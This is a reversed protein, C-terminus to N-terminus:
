RGSGDTFQSSRGLAAVPRESRYVLVALVLLGASVVLSALPHRVDSYTRLFAAIAGAAAAAVALLPLRAHDWTGGVVAVACLLALFFCWAGLYTGTLRVLEVPSSGSIEDRIPDIWIAVALAAFALALVALGMRTRHQLRHASAPEPPRTALLATVFASAAVFLAVWGIAQWRTFDFVEDHIATLVLTPVALGLVGIVMPRVQSWPLGMAVGFVLASALYLGGILAAAGSPRLTWSFYDDTEGPAALLVAGTVGAALVVIVLFAVALPGLRQRM